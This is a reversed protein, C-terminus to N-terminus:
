IRKLVYEIVPEDADTLKNFILDRHKILFKLSIYEMETKNLLRLSDKRNNKNFDGKNEILVSYRLYDMFNILGKRPIPFPSYLINKEDDFWLKRALTYFSAVAGYNLFHPVKKNSKQRIQNITKLHVVFPNTTSEAYMNTWLGNKIAVNNRESVNWYIVPVHFMVFSYSKNRERRSPYEGYAIYNKLSKTNVKIENLLKDHAAIALGEEIDVLSELSFEKTTIGKVKFLLYNENNEYYNFISLSGELANLFAEKPNYGKSVAEKLTYSKMGFNNLVKKSYIKLSKFRPLGKMMSEALKVVEDDESMEIIDKESFRKETLFSKAIRERVKRNIDNTSIDPNAFLFVSVPYPVAYKSKLITIERNGEEYSQIMDEIDRYYAFGKNMLFDITKNSVRKTRKLERYVNRPKSGYQEDLHDIYYNILESVSKMFVLGDKNALM